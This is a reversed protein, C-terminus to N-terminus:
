SIIKERVKSTFFERGEIDKDVVQGPVTTTKPWLKRGPYISTHVGTHVEDGMITGLKRRGSDVLAKGVRSKVVGDDHRLNAVITGAGFNVQEGLVSDGVYSLHGISTNNGIISNKIEVANGVKVNNGLSTFQRIYCNPGIKCNEGIIVPGEIYAGSRLTTGKGIDVAGHITVGPEITGANRFILKQLLKKNTDLLHWPYTIPQWHKALVVRVPQQKAFLNVADTLEYEGRESPKLKKLIPFITNNLVYCGTNVMKTKPKKPKEEIKVLQNREDVSVTGYWEPHELDQALLAFKQKCLELIDTKEFYDDGMVVLFEEQGVYKEAQLLAHGTGNPEQQEQYVLSINKYRSGFMKQIMEKKYHVILVAETVIGDLADLILSLFTRNAVTLLAKPRTVTLPYTRMSKGAVLVVAKSFIGKARQALLPNKNLTM